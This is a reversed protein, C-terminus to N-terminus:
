RKHNLSFSHYFLTNGLSPTILGRSFTTAKGSQCCSSLAIFSLRNLDHVIGCFSARLAVFFVWRCSFVEVNGPKAAVTQRRFAFFTTTCAFCWKRLWHWLPMLSTGSALLDQANNMKTLLFSIIIAKPRRTFIAEIFLRFVIPFFVAFFYGLPCRLVILPVFLFSLRAMFLISTVMFLSQTQHICTILPLMLLFYALILRLPTLCFTSFRQSSRRMSTPPCAFSIGNARKCRLLKLLLNSPLFVFTVIAALALRLCFRYPMRVMHDRKGSTAAIRNVINNSSARHAVEFLVIFQRMLPGFTPAQQSSNKYNM